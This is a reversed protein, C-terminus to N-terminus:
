QYQWHLYYLCYKWHAAGCGVSPANRLETQLETRSSLLLYFHKWNASSCHHPVYTDLNWQYDTGPGPLLLLSPETESSEVQVHCLSTVAAQHCDKPYTLLSPWCIASTRQCVASIYRTFWHICSLSSGGRSQCGTCNGFLPRWTTARAYTWSLNPPPTCSESCHRWHQRQFDQLSSTVTIWDRCCWRVCVCRATVDCALQRRLPRLRRLHFFCTRSLQAVHQRVSLEEVILVGLDHVVTV